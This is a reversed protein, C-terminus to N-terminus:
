EPQAILEAPSGTDIGKWRGSGRHGGRNAKMTVVGYRDTFSCCGCRASKCCTGHQEGHTCLPKKTRDNTEMVGYESIGLHGVEVMNLGDVIVEGAKAPMVHLLRRLEKLRQMRGTLVKQRFERLQASLREHGLGM